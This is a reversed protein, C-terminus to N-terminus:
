TGTDRPRCCSTRVATPRDQTKCSTPALDDAVRKPTLRWATVSRDALYKRAVKRCVGAVRVSGSQTVGAEKTYGHILVRLTERPCTWVQHGWVTSGSSSPVLTSDQAIGLREYETYGAVNV